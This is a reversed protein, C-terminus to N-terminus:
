WGVGAQGGAQVVVFLGPGPAWPPCTGAPPEMWDMWEDVVDM